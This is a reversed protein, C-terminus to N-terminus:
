RAGIRPRRADARELGGQARRARARRGASRRHAREHVLGVFVVDIREGSSRSARRSTWTASRASSRAASTRARRPTPRRFARAHDGGGDVPENGLHDDARDATADLTVERDFKAGDDTRLARWRAVAQTGRPGKRVRARASRPVPVDHRRARDDRRARGSRDVHQLPDDASGHRARRRRRGRVRHRARDRWRRRDQRHARPHRGERRRRPPARREISCACRDEAQAPAPVPDRPRARGREHRDRVRARRLRRADLHPQRRLRDDDGAAHARARARHRPRDGADALRARAAHDGYERCNETSRRSSARASEISRRSTSPSRDAHQPGDDRGDPGPPAGQARARRLGAFAQPSTVEHVLHLDVYLVAPAGPEEHARRARGLAARLTHSPADNMNGTGTSSGSRHRRRGGRRRWSWQADCALMRNIAAVYAKAAAVLIDTDAGHGHFVRARADGDGARGASARDAREGRRARRDGRDRRPGRVRPARAAHPGRRRDGQVGRRGPRDRRRRPRSSARRARPPARHRHGDVGIRVRGPDRRARVVRAVPQVESSVLAELDADTMQKRRDALAKFRAFTKDLADGELM